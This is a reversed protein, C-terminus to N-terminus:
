IRRWRRFLVRGPITMWAARGRGVVHGVSRRTYGYIGPATESFLGFRRAAM